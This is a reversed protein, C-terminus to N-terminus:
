GDTRVLGFMQTTSIICGRLLKEPMGSNSQSPQLSASRGFHPRYLGSAMSRLCKDTPCAGSAQVSEYCYIKTAVGMTDLPCLAINAEVTDIM